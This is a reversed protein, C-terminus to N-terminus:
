EVSAWGRRTTVPATPKELTRRVIGPDSCATLALSVILTVTCVAWIGVLWLPKGPLAFALTFLSVGIILPYTVGAM